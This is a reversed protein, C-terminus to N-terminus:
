NGSGVYQSETELYLELPDTISKQGRHAGIMGHPHVSMCTHSISLYMFYFFLKSLSHFGASYSCSLLATNRHPRQKLEEKDAIIDQSMTAVSDTREEGLNSHTLLQYCVLVPARGM